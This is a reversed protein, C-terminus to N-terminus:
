RTPLKAYEILIWNVATRWAACHAALLTLVAFLQALSFRFRETGRPRLLDFAVISYAATAWPTSCFLCGFFCWFAIYLCSPIGHVRLLLLDLAIAAIGGVILFPLCRRFHRAIAFVALVALMLLAGLFLAGVAMATLVDADGDFPFAFVEGDFAVAFLVWHELALLTGTYIGLRVLFTKSWKATDRVLLTLCVMSYLLFPYLPVCGPRRLLLQAYDGLNGSQWYPPAPFGILFCAAPIVVGAAILLMRAPPSWLIRAPDIQHQNPFTGQDQQMDSEGTKMVERSEEARRRRSWGPAM